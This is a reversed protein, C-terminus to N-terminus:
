FFSLLVVIHAQPKIDIQHIAEVCSNIFGIIPRVGFNEVSSKLPNTAHFSLFVFSLIQLSFLSKIIESALRKYLISSFSLSLFSKHFDRRFFLFISFDISIDLFSNSISKIFPMRSASLYLYVFVSRTQTNYM